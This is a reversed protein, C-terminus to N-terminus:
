FIWELVVSPELRRLKLGITGCFIQSFKLTLSWEETVSEGQKRGLKRQSKVIKSDAMMRGNQEVTM